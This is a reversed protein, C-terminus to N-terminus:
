TFSPFHQTMLILVTVGAASDHQLSADVAGSYVAFSFSIFFDVLIDARLLLLVVRM